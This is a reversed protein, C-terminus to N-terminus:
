EPLGSKNRDTIDVQGVISQTLRFGMSPTRFKPDKVIGLVKPSPVRSNICSLTESLRKPITWSWAEFPKLWSTSIKSGFMRWRTKWFFDRQHNPQGERRPAKGEDTGAYTGCLFDHAEVSSLPPVSHNISHHITYLCLHVVYVSLQSIM